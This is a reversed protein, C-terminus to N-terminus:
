MRAIAKALTVERIENYLDPEARLAEDVAPAGHWRQEVGKRDTYYYWSGRQEVVGFDRAVVSTDFILDFSGAGPYGDATDFFYRAVATSRPAALKNKIVNYKNVQGIDRGGATIYEDRKVLVRQYFAFNKAKGGPTTTPTGYSSFKGIDERLQNVFIGFYPRKPSLGGVKRFFQGTRRAGWAMVNENMAKSEEESPILAPYSDLVVCDLTSSSIADLIVQYSAEMNNGTEVVGVRSNDVGNLEAWDSNYEESAVWLTTFDPNKEQNAAISRLVVSTKGHSEWGYVEAWKNPAWGGGLAVDCSLLGTTFPQIIEMESALVIPKRGSKVLSKNTSAIFVSFDDNM